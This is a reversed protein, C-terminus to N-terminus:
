HALVEEIAHPLEEFREVIMHAGAESAATVEHYGWAVGIAAVGASRAMEMDYTTDGVM